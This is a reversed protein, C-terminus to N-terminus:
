YQKGDFEYSFAYNNVISIRNHYPIAGRSMCVLPNSSKWKEFFEHVHKKDSDLLHYRYQQNKITTPNLFEIYRIPRIEFMTTNGFFPMEYLALLFKEGTKEEEVLLRIEGKPTKYTAIYNLDGFGLGHVPHIKIKM